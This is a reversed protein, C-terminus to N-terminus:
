AGAMEYVNSQLAEIGSFSGAIRRFAFSSLAMPFADVVSRGLSAARAMHEDSPVHGMSYLQVGLYRAATKAMNRYIADSRSEGSGSVLVGFPMRGFRGSLRKILMYAEKISGETDEVQLVLASNQMATLLFHDEQSLLTDIIVVDAQATVSKFILDLHDRFSAAKLVEHNDDALRIVDMGQPVSYFVDDIEYEDRAVQALTASPHEQPQYHGVGERSCTADVLMVSDGSRSLSAALNFLVHNKNRYPVASLFTYVRQRPEGLMRRLGEAQDFQFNDM